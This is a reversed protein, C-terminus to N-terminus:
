EAVGFIKMETMSNWNNASNGLCVIRLYRGSKNININELSLSTGSSSANAITVWNTADNSVEVRFHSQRKDGSFWATHLKTVNFKAGLDITLNEGKGSSSWRTSLDNDFVNNAINGDDSSAVISIPQIEKLATASSDDDSSSVPSTTTIEVLAPSTTKGDSNSTDIERISLYKYEARKAGTNRIIAIGGGNLIVKNNNYTCGTVDKTAWNGDDIKEGLLTWEGGNSIDGNSTTDIYLELKVKTNNEINYALYKMGIWKNSPLKKGPLYTNYGSSAGDPHKLEKYFDWRGDHRFRAYYTSADCYDSDRSYSKSSHGSPGSRLGIILGGVSAGDNGKRQYYVTAEINKFFQAPKTTKKSPYPNIYMRPQKGGGMEMVGNGDITLADDGRTHGWATPDEIDRIGTRLARPTNNHWHASTWDTYGSKTPYFKAIGFVDFADTSQILSSVPVEEAAQDASANSINALSVLLLIRLM